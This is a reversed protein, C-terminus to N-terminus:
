KHKNEWNNLFPYQTHLPLEDTAADVNFSSETRVCKFPKWQQHFSRNYLIGQESVPQIRYIVGGAKVLALM